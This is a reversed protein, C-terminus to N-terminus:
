VDGMDIEDDEELEFKNKYIGPLRRVNGQIQFWWKHLLMSNERLFILDSATAASLRARKITLIRSALSFVRESPASTAPICLLQLFLRCLRPYKLQKIEWWSLPNAEYEIQPEDKYYGLERECLGRKQQESSTVRGRQEQAGQQQTDPVGPTCRLVFFPSRTRAKKKQPLPGSVSSQDAKNGATSAETAASLATGDDQHEDVAIEVMKDLVASWVAEREGEPIFPNLSKVRPDLASALIVMPHLGVQRNMRGIRVQDSYVDNEGDGFRGNFDDLLIKALARTPTSKREDNIAAKYNEM